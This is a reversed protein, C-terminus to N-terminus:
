PIFLSFHFLSLSLLFVQSIWANERICLAATKGKDCDSQSPVTVYEWWRWQEGRRWHHMDTGIRHSECWGPDREPQCGKRKYFPFEKRLTASNSSSNRCEQSGTPPTAYSEPTVHRWCQRPQRSDTPWLMGKISFKSDVDPKSLDSIQSPLAPTAAPRESLLQVVHSPTWSPSSSSCSCSCSVAFVVLILNSLFSVFTFVFFTQLINNVYFLNLYLFFFIYIYFIRCSRTFLYHTRLVTIWLMSQNLKCIDVSEPYFTM